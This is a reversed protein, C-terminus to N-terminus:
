NLTSLGNNNNSIKLSSIYSSKYYGMKDIIELAINKNEEYYDKSECGFLFLPLSLLFILLIKKM